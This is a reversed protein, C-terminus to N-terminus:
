RVFLSPFGVEENFVRLTRTSDCTRSFGYIPDAGVVEYNFTIDAPRGKSWYSIFMHSSDTDFFFQECFARTNVLQIIDTRRESLEVPIADAELGCMRCCGFMREGM